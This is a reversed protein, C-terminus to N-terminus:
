TRVIQRNHRHARVVGPDAIVACRFLSPLHGLFRPAFEEERNVVLRERQAALRIQLRDLSHLGRGSTMGIAHREVIDALLKVGDDSTNVPLMYLM